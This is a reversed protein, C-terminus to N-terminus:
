QDLYKVPLLLLGNKKGASFGLCEEMDIDKVDMGEQLQWDFHYLLNALGFEVMTEGMYMGPCIRRGSGFALLEFSQGKTDIKSDLFREPLFEEPDKWTNPDRGIAWINVHIHTKPQIKYGNIEFETMVERPLLLPALPHLRYTEKIVMRLYQLQDIDELSILERKGFKNRIESQVKSMVRPNRALEAMAWTMTGSSTEIGALLIDMLIAKTNNRTFKDNGVVAEEKELNLLLDVFDKSGVEKEEKHLDIIQEYFADLDRGIKERRGQMGTLRDIIWGIYPIFDSASFSGLMEFAERILKNFRDNSLVTGEFSVGFATRCVISVSLALCKENLNVLTKRSASEAISHIMKKVEEDKIPQISNIRKASFIEQTCLKRIEKWYDNYPSFSIDRNNYSLERGGALSPRSCCHVDHDRLAQKATGSSSLIVTPVKGLNLLMVPGYEKSLKWLSQHPLDELQHLNGIIPLGPPSPISRYQRRQAHKLATLLLFIILLLLSLILINAM